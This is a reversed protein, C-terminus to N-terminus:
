SRQEILYPNTAAFADSLEGDVGKFNTGGDSLLKYPCGRRAIFRRLSMLFSDSDLSNLLEIHTCRTTMCKFLRGWLKEVRRGMHYTQWEQILQNQGDNEANLVHGSINKLLKDAGSSGTHVVYKLLYGILDPTSFDSTM